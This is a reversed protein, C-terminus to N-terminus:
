KGDIRSHINIVICVVMILCVFTFKREVYISKSMSIHLIINVKLDLSEGNLYIMVYTNESKLFRANENKKICWDNVDSYDVIKVWIRVGNTFYVYILLELFQWSIYIYIGM